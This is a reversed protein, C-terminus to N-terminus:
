INIEKESNIKLICQLWAIICIRVPFVVFIWCFVNQFIIVDVFDLDFYVVRTKKYAVSKKLEAETNSLKRMLKLHQKICIAMMMSLRTKYKNYKQGYRSRPRNTGYRSSRSKMKTEMKMIILRIIEYM